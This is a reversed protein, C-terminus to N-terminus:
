TIVRNDRVRISEGFAAFLPASREYLRSLLNGHGAMFELTEDDLKALGHCLWAAQRGAVIAYVLEERPIRRRFISDTWIEASLPIPVLESTSGNSPAVRKGKQPQRLMQVFAAVSPS